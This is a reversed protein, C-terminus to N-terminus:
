CAEHQRARDAMKSMLKGMPVRLHYGLWLRMGNVLGPVVVRKTRGVLEALGQGVTEPSAIM